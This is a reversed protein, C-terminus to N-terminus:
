PRLEIGETALSASMTTQIYQAVRTIVTTGESRSLVGQPRLEGNDYGKVLEMAQAIALLDVAYSSIQSTDTYSLPAPEASYGRWSLYRIVMAFFQERTVSENPLFLTDSVGNVIGNQYAWAVAKAYYSDAPVDLFPSLDMGNTDSGDLRLLMVVAMARTYPIDPGFQIASIGNTLGQEVAEMVHKEYWAGSPIDVFIDGDFLAYITTNTQATFTYTAETSLCVGSESYWGSLLKGSPSQASLTVQEGPMYKGGGNVTGSRSSVTSITVTSTFKATLTYDKDMLLTHHENQNLLVGDCYWGIFRADADPEASITVEVGQLYTGEGHAAGPGETLLTLTASPATYTGYAEILQMICNNYRECYGSNKFQAMSYLGDPFEFLCAHYGLDAAYAAFYGKGYNLNSYTNRPFEQKFVQYITNYGEAPIIQSMWGHADILVNEGSGKVDQIFKALAQAEKAALPKSGNFYRSSTYQTWQHPFSRNLDVGGTVLEGSSNFYKTTCRGPGNQTYGSALGDPNMCPLVYVTWGYDRLLSQNESLRNMLQGATYVLAEADREWNDEYGHIAFGLVMINNGTGFRYAMLNRGEGSTGYIIPEANPPITLNEPGFAFAGVAFFVMFVLILVGRLQIKRM